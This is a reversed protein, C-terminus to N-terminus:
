QKATERAELTETYFLHNFPAVLLAHAASRIKAPNRARIIRDLIVFM